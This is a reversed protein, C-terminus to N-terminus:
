KLRSIFDLWAGRSNFVSPKTNQKVTKKNETHGVGPTMQKM